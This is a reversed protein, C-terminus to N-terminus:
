VKSEDKSVEVKSSKNDCERNETDVKLDLMLFGNVNGRALAPLEADDGNLL